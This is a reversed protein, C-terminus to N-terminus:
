GCLIGGRAACRWCTRSVKKPKSNVIASSRPASRTQWDMPSRSTPLEITVQYMNPQKLVSTQTRVVRYFEEIGSVFRDSGPDPDVFLDNVEDLRVTVTRLQETNMASM